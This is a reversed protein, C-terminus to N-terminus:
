QAERQQHKLADAVIQKTNEKIIGIAAAIAVFTGVLLMTLTFFLEVVDGQHSSLMSVMNFLGAVALLLYCAMSYYKSRM